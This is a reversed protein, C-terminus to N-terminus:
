IELAKKLDTMNSYGQVREDHAIKRGENIAAVTTKNLTDIKKKSHSVNKTTKKVTEM